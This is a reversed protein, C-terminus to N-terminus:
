AKLMPEIYLDVLNYGYNNGAAWGKSVPKGDKAAEGTTYPNDKIGLWECYPAGGIIISYARPDPVSTAPYEKVSTVSKFDPYNGDTTAYLALHVAQARIGVRVADAQAADANKYAKGDKDTLDKYYYKAYKVFDMGSAGGGTAGIGGFNCQAAKVDGGFTLFGTELCIQGFLVESKIGARKAEQDVINVFDEITAAGYKKYTSAPYTKKKAAIRANYYRVMQDTTTLPTGKIQYATKGTGTVSYDGYYNKGNYNRYARVAYSYSTRKKLGTFTYSSASGDAITKLTKHSGDTIEYGSANDVPTWHVTLSTDSAPTVYDRTDANYDTKDTKSKVAEYASRLKVQDVTIDASDNPTQPETNGSSDPITFNIVPTYSSFYEKTKSANVAKRLYRLRYSYTKGPQVSDDTATLGTTEKLRVYSTEDSAKRYLRYVVDLDAAKQWTFTISKKDSALTGNLTGVADGDTSVKVGPNQYNSWIEKKIKKKGTKVPYTYTGKSIYSRVVYEYTSNKAATEDTYSTTKNSAITLLGKYSGGPTRRYIRYGTAQPDNKWTVTVRHLGSDVVKTVEEVKKPTTVKKGTKDYSTARGSSNRGIVTYYYTTGYNAATDTYSTSGTRAIEQWTGNKGSKRFVLYKSSNASKKWTVKVSTGSGTLKASSLKTKSPLKSKKSALAMGFTKAIADAEKEGMKKTKASTNLFKSVDTSSSIFASEIIIGPIHKEKSQRIVAYYDSLSGDPYKNGSQSNKYAIGRSALGLNKLSTLINNALNKGVTYADKDYHSNPYWVEAGKASSSASNLHVSIFADAHVSAAYDTRDKLSVYTDNSRTMLVTVGQYKELRNKMATAIQLNLTKEKFGHGVAGSDSGGHGPDIVIVRDNEDALVPDEKTGAAQATVGTSIGTGAGAFLGTVLVASLFAAIIKKKM